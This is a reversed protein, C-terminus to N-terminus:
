EKPEMRVLIYGYDEAVVVQEAPAAHIAELETLSFDLQAGDTRSGYLAVAGLGGTRSRVRDYMALLTPDIDATLADREAAVKALDADLTAFSADRDASHREVDATIAAEQAELEAVRAEAAELREMAELEIEELVEQRKALQDLEHQLAQADKATGPGADLRKQHRAARERVQEVDAEAKSVERRIDSVVTRAEVQARSLDQARGELEALTALVPLTRRQHNLKATRTDLAQIDLLRRQHAVPANTM